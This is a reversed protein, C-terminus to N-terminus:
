PRERKPMSGLYRNGQQVILLLAAGTEGPLSVWSQLLIGHWVSGTNATM